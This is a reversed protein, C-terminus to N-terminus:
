SYTPAKPVGLLWGLQPWRAEVIRALAYYASSAIVFAVATAEESLDEPLLGWAVLAGVAAPVVTRVWGIIISTM